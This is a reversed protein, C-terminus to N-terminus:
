LPATDGLHAHDPPTPHRHPTSYAHRNSHLHIAPDLNPTPHPHHYTHRFFHGYSGPHPYGDRHISPSHIYAQFAIRTPLPHTFRHLNFLVGGAHDFFSATFAPCFACRPEHRHLNYRLFTYILVQGFLVKSTYNAQMDFLHARKGLAQSRSDRASTKTRENLM